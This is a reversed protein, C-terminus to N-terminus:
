NNKASQNRTYTRKSPSKARRNKIVWTLNSELTEVHGLISAM